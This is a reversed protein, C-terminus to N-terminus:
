HFKRAVVVAAKLSEVINSTIGVAELFVIYIGIRLPRGSDDLGNFIVSGNTGSPQNNLLTRVLRGKSDFIKIRVQSVANKLNYNIVTFDEFGDNDPSFPNPSITLGSKNNANITFISNQRGPTAGYPDTSSSWDTSLNGSLYPNIKELSINKTELFNKNHWKSSYFVSDITNGRADKLLIIEGENSLGLDSNLIGIFKNQTFTYNDLMSSDSAAIYYQGPFLTINKNCIKNQKGKDDEIKWGGLEVNSGSINMLEIFESNGDSPDYMIENIILDNKSYSRVNVISNVEGPTAKNESFSTVWNTSDNSAASTSIRELSYGDEGGWSSNYFVSDIVADRFDCVIIGDSSNGLTGFNITQIKGSCQPYIKKISSDRTIVLFEKPKLFLDSTSIFSKIRSPIEDIVYWGKLNVTDHPSVNQLEFWEPEGKLPAYMIENIAVINQPYGPELIKKYYNNLTDEDGEFIIKSAAIIKEKLNPIVSSSVVVVSDGGIIPLGPDKSLLFFEDPNEVFAYYFEISYNNATSVGNNAVEVCIHVNDGSVPFRPETFINKVSLDKQKPTISNIRGPTSQEVDTSKSWSSFQTSSAGPSIRELSYGKEIKYDSSYMMSDILTGLSDKLVVGDRDNNLVPLSMKIIASPIIRHYNIIASDNTLVIFSNPGILTNKPIKKTVPTTYVDNVTWGSLDVIASSPNYLEIWEPEGQGPEFMVENIIIDNYVHQPETVSFNQSIKNNSLNEDGSFNVVAIINRRGTLAPIFSVEAYVSDKSKLNYLQLTKILEEADNNNDDNIDDYFSALFSAANLIGTNKIKVKLLISKGVIQVKPQIVLSDIQLDYNFPTVSNRFGPTGNKIKSNSWNLPLSDGNLQIKEDSYGASNDASYTYADLTDGQLNLLLIQRDATNAMGSTGFSNDDIKLIVADSPVINRYLGNSLDYDHEFIVGYSGPPIKTGFGADEITDPKSNYYKIKFHNVDVSNTGSNYIEIFENNGSEPYFMVESLICRSLTQSFIIAAPYFLLLLIVVRM